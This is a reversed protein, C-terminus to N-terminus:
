RSMNQPCKIGGKGFCKLIEDPQVPNASSFFFIYIKQFRRKSFQTVQDWTKSLGKEMTEPVFLTVNVHSVYGQLHM